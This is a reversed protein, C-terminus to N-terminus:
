KLIESLPWNGVEVWESSVNGKGNILVSYQWTKGTKTDIKFIGKEDNKELVGSRLDDYMYYGQFLTYQGIGSNVFVLSIIASLLIVILVSFAVILKNNM